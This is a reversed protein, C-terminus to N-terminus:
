GYDQGGWRIRRGYRLRQATVLLALVFVGPEYLPAFAFLRPDPHNRALAAWLLLVGALARLILLLPSLLGVAVAIAVALLSLPWLVLVAALLSAPGSAVRQTRAVLPWLGPAARVDVRNQAGAFAIKGGSRAIARAFALDETLARGIQEFGGMEDYLGARFAFNGFFVGSPLGTAALLNAVGAYHAADCSQWLAVPGNLPRFGVPGAMADVEGALVPGAMRAIWGDPLTSDADLTLIVPARAGRFGVDLARQRTTLGSGRDPALAPAHLVRLGALGAQAAEMLTGDTSRDDVLIVEARGTAVWPDARLAALTARIQGAENHTTIVVSADPAIRPLLLAPDDM